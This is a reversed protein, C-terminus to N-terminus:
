TQLNLWAIQDDSNLLEDYHSFRFTPDVQYKDGFIRRREDNKSAIGKLEGSFSTKLADAFRNAINGPGIIGRQVKSM